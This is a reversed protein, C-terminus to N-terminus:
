KPPPPACQGTLSSYGVVTLFSLVVALLVRREVSAVRRGGPRGLRGRDSGSAASHLPGRRGRRPFGGHGVGPLRATRASAGWWSGTPSSTRCPPSATSRPPRAPM